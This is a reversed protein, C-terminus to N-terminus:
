GLFSGLVHTNEQKAEKKTSQHIRNPRRPAMAAAFRGGCHTVLAGGCAVAGAVLGMRARKTSVRAYRAHSM